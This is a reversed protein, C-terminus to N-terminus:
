SSWRTIKIGGERVGETDVKKGGAVPGGLRWKLARYIPRYDMYQTKSSDEPLEM